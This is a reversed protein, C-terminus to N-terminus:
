TESRFERLADPPQLLFVLIQLSFQVFGQGLELLYRAGLSLQRELTNRVTLLALRWVLRTGPDPAIAVQSPLRRAAETM